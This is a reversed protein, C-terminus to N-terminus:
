RASNPPNVIETTMATTVYVLSSAATLLLIGAVQTMQADTVVELTLTVTPHPRVAIEM